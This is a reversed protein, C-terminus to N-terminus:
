DIGPGSDRPIPARRCHRARAWGRIRPREVGLAALADAETPTLALVADAQRYLTHRLRGPPGDWGPHHFPTLVFPVGRERALAFSAFGLSAGSGAM